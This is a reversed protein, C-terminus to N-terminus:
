KKIRLNELQKQQEVTIKIVEDEAVWITNKTKHLKIILKHSKEKAKKVTGIFGAHPNRPSSVLVIDGKTFM